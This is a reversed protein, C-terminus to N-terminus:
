RPVVVVNSRASVPSRGYSNWSVVRFSYGAGPRVRVLLRSAGPLAERTAVRRGHRLVVVAQRTTPTGVSTGPNWRVLAGGSRPRARVGDAHSPAKGAVPREDSPAPAPAPAPTSSSLFLLRNPSGAGLGRLVGPTSDTVIEDAVQGPTLGPNHGLLVAAVGAAHPAAMSTGSMTTTSTPSSPSASTVSVGPAYLDVCSGHNSFWAQADTSDSASVTIAAPLRAPSATCADVGSNGSAVVATIGQDILGQLAADLVSNAGGGLSLNVVASDGDPHRAAVWDLGAMVDSMLGRGDCALVRVPVITAEKAVGYKTGAVTGAVHTGHGNCDSTGGPYASWGAVVRGSLEAHDARVGTDVVYVDVGKGTGSATFTGSLPLTRQDVRDLGWTTSARVPSDPVVEVVGPTSALEDLDSRDATVVAVRAASRYTSTVTVDSAALAAVRNRLTGAESLRVLYRGNASVAVDAGPRDASAATGPAAPQAATSPAAVAPGAALLSSVLSALAATAAARTITNM